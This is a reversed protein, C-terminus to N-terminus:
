QELIQCYWRSIHLMVGIGVLTKVIFYDNGFRVLKGEQGKFPGHIVRVLKGAKAEAEESTVYRTDKYEPDCIARFERMEYDSIEYYANSDQKKVVSMPVPCTQLLKMLETEPMIKQIFLLNHVVPILVKRPKEGEKCKETYIMPIFHSVQNETLFDSIIGEKHNFTRVAYWVMKQEVTPNNNNDTM